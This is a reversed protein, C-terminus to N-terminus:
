GGQMLQFARCYEGIKRSLDALSGENSVVVDARAAKRALPLQAALRRRLQALPQADRRLLRRLRLSRGAAVVVTLDFEGELSKEFLLPADVVLLGRNARMRRRMEALIPPHTLRELRRRLREDSFVLRGLARRDIRGRRDLIAPGFARLVPGYAPGGRALVRHAAEDLCLTGAGLRRFAQLAESKGSGLGGTLGM